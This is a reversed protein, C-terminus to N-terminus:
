EDKPWWPLRFRRAGYERPEVDATSAWVLAAVWGILTWGLFVNLVTIAMRNRHHRVSAVIAPIFYLVLLVILLSQGSGAGNVNTDSHALATAPLLIAAMFLRSPKAMMAREANDAPLSRIDDEQIIYHAADLSTFHHLESPPSSLLGKSVFETVVAQLINSTLRLSALLVPPIGSPGGFM